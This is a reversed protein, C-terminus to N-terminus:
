NLIVWQGKVVNFAFRIISRGSKLINGIYGYGKSAPIYDSEYINFGVSAVYGNYEDTTWEFDKREEESMSQIDYSVLTIISIDLQADEISKVIDKPSEIAEITYKSM